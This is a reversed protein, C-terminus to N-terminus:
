AFYRRYEEPTPMIRFTAQGAAVVRGSGDRVKFDVTKDATGRAIVEEMVAVFEDATVRTACTLEGRGPATFRINLITNLVIYESPDLHALLAAGAATEAFGCIAGAHVLGFANLNDPSEELAMIVRGGESEVTRVRMHNRQAFPCRGEVMGAIAEREM